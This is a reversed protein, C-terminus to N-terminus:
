ELGEKWEKYQGRGVLLPENSYNWTTWLLIHGEPTLTTSHGIMDRGDNDYWGQVICDEYTRGEDDEHFETDDHLCIFDIMLDGEWTGNIILKHDAHRM